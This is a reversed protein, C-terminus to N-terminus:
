LRVMIAGGAFPPKDQPCSHAVLVQLSSDQGVGQTGPSQFSHLVHVASHPPPVLNLTRGTFVAGVNPPASHVSATSVWLSNQLVIGQSISQTAPSQSDHVGQEAEQPLPQFYEVRATWVGAEWPPLGQALKSFSSPQLRSAHATSQTMVAHLAQLVQESVHPPPELKRARLTPVGAIDPPVAQGLKVSVSEHLSCIHGTFQSVAPRESQLSHEVCHPSPQPLFYLDRTMVCSSAYPPTAHVSASVTSSSSQLTPSQVPVSVADPLSQTRPSQPIQLSQM